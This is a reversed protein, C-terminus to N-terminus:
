YNNKPFHIVNSPKKSTNVDTCHTRYSTANHVNQLELVASRITMFSYIRSNQLFTQAMEKRSLTAFVYRASQM